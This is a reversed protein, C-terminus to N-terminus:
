AAGAQTPEEEATEEAGSSESAQAVEARDKRRIKIAPLSEQEEGEEGPLVVGDEVDSILKRRGPAPIAVRKKTVSAATTAVAAGGLMMRSLARVVVYDTSLLLGSFLIALTLIMSGVIAFHEHLWTSTMAGLYGGPGIVPAGPLPLELVSAFTTAAIVVLVWGIQRSARVYNTQVRFMWVTLVTLGAVVLYSGLGLSQLLLRSILAGFWGCNNAIQANAPYTESALPLASTLFKPLGAVSDAPDHSLLSLWLFVCVAALVIAEIDFEIKREDSM